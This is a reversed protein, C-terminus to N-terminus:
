EVVTPRVLLYLSSAGQDSPFGTQSLVAVTGSRIALRTSVESAPYPEGPVFPVSIRTDAVITDGGPEVGVVQTIKLADDEIEGRDGDLTRLRRHTVLSLALPGDTAQITDLAAGLADLEPARAPEGARVGRVVWYEVEVNRPPPAAPGATARRVVDDVGALVGAPAVVVLSGGPGEQARGEPELVRQLSGVLRGAYGPPLDWTRLQAPPPAAPPLPSACGLALLFPLSRM